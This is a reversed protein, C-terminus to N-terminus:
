LVITCRVTSPVVHSSNCYTEWGDLEYAMVLIRNLSNVTPWEMIIALPFIHTYEATDLETHGWPSYGVLSRQPIRWVLISSHNAM